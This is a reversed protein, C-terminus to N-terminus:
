PNRLLWRQQRHSADDKVAGLVARFDPLGLLAFGRL